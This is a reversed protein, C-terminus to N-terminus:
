EKWLILLDSVLNCLLLQNEVIVRQLRYVESLKERQFRRKNIQLEKRKIGCEDVGVNKLPNDGLPINDTRAGRLFACKNQSHLRHKHEINDEKMWDKLVVKCFACKVCDDRGLFFFGNAALREVSIEPKSWERFSALRQQEYRMNM